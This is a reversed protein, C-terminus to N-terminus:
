KIFRGYRATPFYNITGNFVYYTKGGRGSKIEASQVETELKEKAGGVQLIGARLEAVLAQQGTIMIQPAQIEILKELREEYLRAERECIWERITM